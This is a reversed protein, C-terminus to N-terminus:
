KRRVGIAAILAAVAGSFLPIFFSILYFAPSSFMLAAGTVRVKVVQENDGASRSDNAVSELMQPFFETNLFVVYLLWVCLLSVAATTATALGTLFAAGYPYSEVTRRRHVMAGVVAIPGIILWLATTSTTAVAGEGQFMSEVTLWVLGLGGALAGWLLAIM